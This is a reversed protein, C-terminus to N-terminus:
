FGEMRMIADFDTTGYETMLHADSIEEFNSSDIKHAIGGHVFTNGKIGVAGYPCLLIEQGNLSKLLEKQQKDM